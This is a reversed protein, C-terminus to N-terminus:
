LRIVAVTINDASGMRTATDVLVSTAIGPNHSHANLISAIEDDPVYDTLGDSCLLVIDGSSTQLEQFEPELESAIGIARTLVNRTNSETVRDRNTSGREEMEAAVTHDRTVQTLKKESYVYGRSDGVNCFTVSDGDILAIVVTTGMIMYREIQVSSALVRRNATTIATGILERSPCGEIGSEEVTAVITETAVKSAVDGRDAGGVGDAVIYMGHEPVQVYRDENRARRGKYSKGSVRLNVPRIGLAIREILM